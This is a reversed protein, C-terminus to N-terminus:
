HCTLDMAVLCVLYSFDASLFDARTFGDVFGTGTVGTAPEEQVQAQDADTSSIGSSSSMTREAVDRLGRFM